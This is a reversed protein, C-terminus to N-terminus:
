PPLIDETKKELKTCIAVSLTLLLAISEYRGSYLSTAFYKKSTCCVDNWSMTLIKTEMVMAITMM